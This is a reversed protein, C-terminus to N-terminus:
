RQFGCGPDRLRVAALDVVELAVREGRGPDRGLVDILVAGRPPAVVPRPKIGGELRQPAAVRQNNPFEVPEPAVQAM